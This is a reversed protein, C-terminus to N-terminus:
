NFDSLVLHEALNPYYRITALDGSSAAPRPQSPNKTPTSQGVELACVCSRSPHRGVACGPSIASRSWALSKAAQALAASIRLNRHTNEDATAAASGHAVSNRMRKAPQFRRQCGIAPSTPRHLTQSGPLRMGTHAMKPVTIHADPRLSKHPVQAVFRPRLPCTIDPM